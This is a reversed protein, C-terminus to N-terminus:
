SGEQCPVSAISWVSFPSAWPGGLLHLKLVPSSNEWFVFGKRLSADTHRERLGPPLLMRRGQHVGWNTPCLRCRLLPVASCFHGQGASPTWHHGPSPPVQGWFHFPLSIELLWLGALYSMGLVMGLVLFSPGAQLTTQCGLSGGCFSFPHSPHLGPISSIFHCSIRCFADQHRSPLYASSM